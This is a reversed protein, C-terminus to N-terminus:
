IRIGIICVDDVQDLSGKWEELDKLLFQKQAGPDMAASTILLKELRSYMFKKGRPGGFQDAFGDTFLFLMDNKQLQFEKLNFLTSGEDLSATVARKDAKLETIKGERLIWCPNNAGAFQMKLTDTQILCCSIDMGDRIIENNKSRLNKKLESNLFNLIDAPNQVSSELISQNLISAGLMSLMAGPVGHGTCDAVAIAKIKQKLSPHDKTDLIWYFDGSVIDKPKYIAFSQPFVDNFESNSPIFSNQIRKSYNISDIIEKQKEEVLHKQKDIVKTKERNTKLAKFIFFSFVLTLVLVVGIAITINRQIRKESAAREDKVRQEAENIKLENEYRSQSAARQAANKNLAKSYIYHQEMFELQYKHLEPHKECYSIVNSLTQTLDNINETKKFEEIAILNNKIVEESNGTLMNVEGINRHYLANMNPNNLEDVIEKAEKLYINASSMNKLRLSLDSLMLLTHAMGKKDGIQRRISLATKLSQMGTLVNKKAMLTGMNHLLHGKMNQDNYEKAILFCRKLYLLSTTTDGLYMYINAMNNMASLVGTKNKAQGELSLAKTYLEIAKLFDGKNQYLNAINSYSVILLGYSKIEENIVRGKEFYFLASDMNTTYNSFYYGINNLGLAETERFVYKEQGQTTKQKRVALDLMMKNYRVWVKEDYCGEAIRSLTQVRATDSRSSHYTKIESRLLQLDNKNMKTSDLGDLLYYNKDLYQSRVSVFCILLFIIFKFRM